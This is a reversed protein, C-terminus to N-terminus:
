CGTRVQIAVCRDDCVEFTAKEVESSGRPLLLHSPTPLSLSGAMGLSSSSTTSSRSVSVPSFTYISPRQRTWCITPKYNIPGRHLIQAFLWLVPRGTMIIAYNKKYCPNNHERGRLMPNVETVTASAPMEVRIPLLRPLLPGNGCKSERIEPITGLGTTRFRHILKFLFSFPPKCITLSRHRGILFIM